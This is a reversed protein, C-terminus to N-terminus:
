LGQPDKHEPHSFWVAMVDEPISRCKLFLREQNGRGARRPAKPTHIVATIDGCMLALEPKEGNYEGHWCQKSVARTDPWGQTWSM